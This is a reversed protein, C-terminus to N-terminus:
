SMKRWAEPNPRTLIKAAVPQRHHNLKYVIWQNNHDKVTLRFALIERANIVSVIDDGPQLANWETPSM